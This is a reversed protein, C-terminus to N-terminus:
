ACFEVGDGGWRKGILIVESLFGCSVFTTRVARGVNDSNRCGQFLKEREQFLKEAGRSCEEKEREDLNQMGRSCDEKEREDLNQCAKAHYSFKQYNSEM